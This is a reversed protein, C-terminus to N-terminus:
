TEARRTRRSLPRLFHSIVRLPINDMGIGTIFVGDLGGDLLEHRVAMQLIHDEVDLDRHFRHGLDRFGARHLLDLALGERAIHHDLHDHRVVGPM